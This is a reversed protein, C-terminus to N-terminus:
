GERIHFVHVAAIRPQMSPSAWSEPDYRRPCSPWSSGALPKPHSPCWFQGQTKTNCRNYIPRLIFKVKERTSGGRMWGWGKWGPRLLSLAESGTGKKGRRSGFAYPGCDLARPGAVRSPSGALIPKNLTFRGAGHSKSPVALERDTVDPRTYQRM